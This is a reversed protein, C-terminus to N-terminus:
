KKVVTIQNPAVTKGFRKKYEKSTVGKVRVEHLKQVESNSWALQTECRFVDYWM